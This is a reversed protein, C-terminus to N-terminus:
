LLPGFQRIRMEEIMWQRLSSMPTSSM